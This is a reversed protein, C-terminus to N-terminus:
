VTVWTTGNYWYYAADAISFVNWGVKPAYFVWAGNTWHSLKQAQGAWAGTPSTTVIYIDGDSPLGPPTNTRSVVGGVTLAELINLAENITIVKGAQAESLQPLGARPTVM